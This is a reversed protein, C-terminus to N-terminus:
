KKNGKAKEELKTKIESLEKEVKIYRNKLFRISLEDPKNGERVARSFLQDIAHLHERVIDNESVYQPVKEGKNARRMKLGIIFGILAASGMLFLITLIETM